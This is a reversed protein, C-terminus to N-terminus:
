GKDGVQDDPSCTLAVVQSAMKRELVARVSAIREQQEPSTFCSGNSMGMFGKAADLMEQPVKEATVTTGMNVHDPLAAYAPDLEYLANYLGGWSGNTTTSTCVYGYGPAYSGRVIRSGRETTIRYSFLPIHTIM